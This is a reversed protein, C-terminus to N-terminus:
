GLGWSWLASGLMTQALDLHQRAYLYGISVWGDGGTHMWSSVACRLASRCDVEKVLADRNTDRESSEVGSYAHYGERRRKEDFPILHAAVCPVRRETGAAHHRLPSATLISHM